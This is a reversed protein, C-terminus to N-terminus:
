RSGNRSIRRRARRLDQPTAGHASPRIRPRRSWKWFAWLLLLGAAMMLFSWFQSAIFNWPTLLRHPPVDPDGLVLWYDSGLPMRFYDIVFRFVVYTFVYMAVIFGKFPKRDKLVWLLAWAVIGETFAEYLQTPHRPLNIMVGAPADIGVRAAIDQVWPLDASFREAHPFVIGVRWATVRGYLEGNIFNGIRGFTYGLPIAATMMDGWDLLDIRKRRAYIWVGVVAGLLGGYYNMGQLGVFNGDRFPWFIRQPNRWYFRTEDFILVAFLRAGVLLGIIAWFFLNAVDDANVDLRRKSVQRVFLAYTLTFAVIYMLGYWAFPLGPVIQTRFWGTTPDIWWADQPFTM